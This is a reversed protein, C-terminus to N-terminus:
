NCYEVEREIIPGVIYPDNEKGTGKTIKTGKKLTIVPRVNRGYNNYDTMDEGSGNVSHIKEDGYPTMTWYDTDNKAYSSQMLTRESSTILGVPYTLKAKNNGVSFRDLINDCNLDYFDGYLATKFTIGNLNDGNPNLGGMNVIKRNNCYVADSDLYNTYNLLTSKYWHDIVDKIQSSYVNINGDKENDNEKYNFLEKLVQNITKGNELIFYESNNFYFRVKSCDTDCIYHHTRDVSTPPTDSSSLEYLGTTQNWTAMNHYEGSKTSSNQYVKNYMYGTGTVSYINNNFPIWGIASYPGGSVGLSTSSASLNYRNDIDTIHYMITCTTENNSCAYTDELEFYDPTGNNNLDESTWKSPLGNTESVTFLKAEPDYDYSKGFKTLYSYTTSYGNSGYVYGTVYRRDSSCIPEEGREDISEITFIVKGNNDSIYTSITAEDSSTVPGLEYMGEKTERYTVNQSYHGNMYFSVNSYKGATLKFKIVYEGSTKVNFKFSGSGTSTWEKTSSNYTYPNSSDNTYTIDSDTLATSSTVPKVGAGNYILRVGGNDTTRIIQWCYGAFLVNANDKAEDGTYYYVTEKNINKDVTDQTQYTPNSKIIDDYSDVYNTFLKQSIIKTLVKEDEVWIGENAEVKIKFSIGNEQLSNWEETTFLTRGNVWDDTTGDETYLVIYKSILSELKDSSLSGNNVDDAFYNGYLKGNGTCYNRLEEDTPSYVPRRIIDMCQIIQEESLNENITYIRSVPNTDSIAIKDKDLYAKITMTGNIGTSGKAIYGIVIDDNNVIADNATVKYISSNTTDRNTFYDPDEEGLGTTSVVIDVPLIKGNVTNVIDVAKVVYEIGGDYTTDGTISIVAEDSNNTDTSVNNKDIPFANTLNISDTQNSNFYIRGVKIVNSVGTRTYNFFAFTVGSVLVVLIAIAITTLLIKKNSEM